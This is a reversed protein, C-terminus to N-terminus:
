NPKCMFVYFGPENDVICPQPDHVEWGKSTKVKIAEAMENKQTYKFFLSKLKMNAKIMKGGRLELWYKISGDNMHQECLVCNNVVWEANANDPMNVALWTKIFNEIIESRRKLVDTVVEDFVQAINM